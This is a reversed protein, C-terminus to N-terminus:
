KNQQYARIMFHYADKSKLIESSSRADAGFIVLSFDNEELVNVIYSLKNQENSPNYHYEFVMERILKLKGSEVLEGLVIGEGGEIDMKMLDIPGTIYTSLKAAPVDVPTFERRSSKTAHVEQISTSGGPKGSM